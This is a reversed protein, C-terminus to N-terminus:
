LRVRFSPMKPMAARLGLGFGASDLGLPISGGSGTSDFLSSISSWMQQQVVMAPGKETLDVTATM